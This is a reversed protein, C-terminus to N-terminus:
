MFDVELIILFTMLLWSEQLVERESQIGTTTIFYQSRSYKYM